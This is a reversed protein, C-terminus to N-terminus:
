IAQSVIGATVPPLRVPVALLPPLQADNPARESGSTASPQSAWSCGRAPAADLGRRAECVLM